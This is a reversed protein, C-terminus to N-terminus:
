SNEDTMPFAKDREELVAFQMFLVLFVTEVQRSKSLVSVIKFTVTFCFFSVLLLASYFRIDHLEM